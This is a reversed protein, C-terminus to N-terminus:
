LAAIVGRVYGVSEALGPFPDKQDKEHEFHLSGTYRLRALTRILKPTDIVGAGIEVTSGKADASSVDKIHVDLLRDFFRKAETAPDLGLRQTHGVDICLGMRRDMKRILRYASEPSPFRQDTPGHNHIALSIGTEKVKREALELLPADPVGVMMRIGALQAYAFAKHVEEESKMYVVGCSSLQIGAAQLRERVSKMEDATVTMPLHMDKLTIRRIRLRATMAIAQDLTFARFTYSAIGLEFSTAARAATPAAATVDNARLAPLAAAMGTAAALKMFDRRSPTAM